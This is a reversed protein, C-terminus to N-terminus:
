RWDPPELSRPVYEASDGGDLKLGADLHRRLLQRFTAEQRSDRFARKPIVSLAHMNKGYVMVYLRENELVRSYFSWGVTSSMHVTKFDIGADTFTLNYEDRFKPDGRFRRRPLDIVLGYFLATCAVMILAGITWLPMVSNLLLNLLLFLAAILVGCVILRLSLEKTHRFYLRTAELFEKEDPRFNLQVVDVASSM